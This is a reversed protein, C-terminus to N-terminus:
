GCCPPSAAAPRGLIAVFEGKDARDEVTFTVDHIATFGGYRKTVGRFEVVNRVPPTPEAM